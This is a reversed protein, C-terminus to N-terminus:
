PSHRTSATSSFARIGLGLAVTVCGILALAMDKQADWSDGQQGNYAEAQDPSMVVALLWEVVEYLASVGLVLCIAFAIAWVRNMSGRREAVEVTPLIMLAGFALHVLRDYHNRTWGFWHSTSRGTLIELWQDYPVYSYIYRAGLIHLWLFAVLCSFASNSLWRRYIVLALMAIAIGTPIHQLLQEAPYPGRLLSLVLLASTLALLSVQGCM